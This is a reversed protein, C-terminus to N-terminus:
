APVLEMWLRQGAESDCVIPPLSAPQAFQVFRKLKPFTVRMVQADEDFDVINPRCDSVTFPVIIPREPWHTTSLAHSGRMVRVKVRWRSETDCLARRKSPRDTEGADAAKRKRVWYPGDLAPPILTSAKKTRVLARAARARIQALTGIAVAEEEVEQEIPACMHLFQLWRPGQPPQNVAYRVVDDFMPFAAAGTTAIPIMGLPRVESLGLVGPRCCWVLPPAFHPPQPTHVSICNTTDPLHALLQQIHPKFAFALQIRMWARAVRSTCAFRACDALSWGCRFIWYSFVYYSFAETQAVACFNGM